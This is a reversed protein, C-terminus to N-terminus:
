TLFASYYPSRCNIMAAFHFMPAVISDFGLFVLCPLPIHDHNGDSAGDGGQHRDVAERGQDVAKPAIGVCKTGAGGGVTRGSRRGRRLTVAGTRQRSGAAAMLCSIEHEGVEVVWTLPSALEANTGRPTRVSLVTTDLNPAVGPHRFHWCSRPFEFAM